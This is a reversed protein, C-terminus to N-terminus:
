FQCTIGAVPLFRPHTLEHQCVGTKGITEFLYEKVIAKNEQIRMKKDELYEENMM